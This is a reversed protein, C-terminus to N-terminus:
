PVGSSAKQETKSFEPLTESCSIPSKMEEQEGIVNEKNTASM